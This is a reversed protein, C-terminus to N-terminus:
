KRQCNHSQEKNQSFQFPHDCRVAMLFIGGAAQQAMRLVEGAGKLPPVNPVLLTIEIKSGPRIESDSRLLVGRTSVNETVAAIDRENEGRLRVSAPQRLPYRRESRREELSM